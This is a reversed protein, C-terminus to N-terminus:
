VVMHLSVWPLAAASGCHLDGRGDEGAFDVHDHKAMSVMTARSSSNAGSCSISSVLVAALCAANIQLVRQALHAAAALLLLKDDTAELRSKIALGHILLVRNLEVLLRGTAELM